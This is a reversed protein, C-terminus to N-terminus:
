VVGSGRREAIRQVQSYLGSAALGYVIGLVVWRAPQALSSGGGSVDALAVLATAAVIALLGAFRVPMGLRKGVEVIGPVLAVIALEDLLM